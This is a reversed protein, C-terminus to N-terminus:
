SLIFTPTLSATQIEAAHATTRCLVQVVAQGAAWCRLKAENENSYSIRLRSVRKSEWSKARERRPGWFSRWELQIAQQSECKLQLLRFVTCTVGRLGVRRGGNENALRLEKFDKM